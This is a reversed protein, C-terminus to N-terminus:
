WKMHSPPLEELILNHEALSHEEIWWVYRKSAVSRSYHNLLTDLAEVLQTVTRYPGSIRQLHAEGRGSEAIRRTIFYDM